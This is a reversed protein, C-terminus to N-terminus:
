QEFCYIHNRDSCYDSSSTARWDAEGGVRGVVGYTSTSTWAGCSKGEGSGTWASGYTSKGREDRNLKSLPASLLNARNNFLKAPTEGEPRVDYWPGVDTIREHARLTGDDVFARWKGGLLVGDAATQCIIDAADVGTAGGVDARLDGTFTTSTVFARKRAVSPAAPDNPSTATGPSQSSPTDDTGAGRETGDGTGTVSSACAFLSLALTSVAFTLTRM